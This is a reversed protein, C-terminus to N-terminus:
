FSPTTLGTGAVKQMSGAGYRDFTYAYYGYVVLLVGLTTANTQEARIFAPSGPAEWLHCETRPVVYIEDQNATVTTSCNNDVVVYMGNPLVGRVGSNYYSTGDMTGGAQTPIGSSNILPWSSTMEKALWYWRRSHMVAHTPTAMNLCQAEVGSAAALVKPYLKAGTPQTDAYAGLTSAAKAALGTTAGNILTSDLNTAYRNFLDGLVIDSIGHGRDIAQRSVNQYGAATLVSISVDTEVLSTAGIGTGLLQTTQNGVATATTIAPVVVSMGEPPLAHPVCIDAFPRMAAVAPAYMDTLYQPVVLGGLGAGSTGTILDGAAREMYQGAREVREEQMHRALRAESQVDRYLFQRCVDRLFTNGGPDSQATYTREERGVRMVEDYAPKDRKVVPRSENMRAESETEEADVKRARALKTKIGEQQTKALDIAGFLEECRKDEDETLSARGEQQATALTIEIEKRAKQERKVSAELEVEIGAILERINAM